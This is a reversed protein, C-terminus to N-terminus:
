YSKFSLLAESKHEQLKKKNKDAFTKTMGDRYNDPNALFRM